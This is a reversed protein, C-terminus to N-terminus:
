PDRRVDLTRDVATDTVDQETGDPWRVTLRTVTTATGLGFTVTPEVQTLYSRTPMVTRTQTRGGAALTVAAGIADRNAATGRLRVRLWHHGLAQDNRLVLPAGAVQTLVLDLDGDGDLDAYGAARGVMPQSLDGTADAAVEVYTARADAGANWFLQAPQAYTQSAQVTEIEAELHGNAHLLDLRGDLDYDFFLVGFTLRRRTPAGIGEAISEDAFQMGRGQAVFLSSMENAFNGVAFGLAGDDRYTAADVGMAGTAVGNRDYAIGCPVGDEAFKGDGLNHFLFKRVTDNAVFLDLRGDGDVDAPLVALAKGMPADTAPNTIQMGAEATVDAFNGQGDNAYLQSHTGAFNMPPGYARGIGTLKYDVEFDITRSWQVYNGVFLDLDHDGDADFFAACTSWADAPGAAGADVEVFRGGENRFLHNPGVATFYLDRDGDADIDAVAVGMGYFSVGLGAATTVDTFHGKGDNAFLGMTAGTKAPADDWRTSNVFLLDVDGDDDYDFLALGGGMTEPLLKDGAAGNEHRFTVGSAETIDTFTVTPAAATPRATVPARITVEQVPPPEDSARSLWWAGAGVTTIVLIAVLSLRFGRGIAADDQAPPPSGPGAETM